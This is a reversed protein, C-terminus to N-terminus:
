PQRHARDRSTGVASRRVSRYRALSSHSLSFVDDAGGGVDGDGSPGGGQGRGVASVSVRVGISILVELIFKVCEPIERNHSNTLRDPSSRSGRSYPGGCNM